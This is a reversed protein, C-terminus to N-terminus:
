EITELVTGYRAQVADRLAEFVPIYTGIIRDILNSLVDADYIHAIINRDQLMSLWADEDIFDFYRYSSKLIDRPSGTSATIDGEYALLGKLMKWGLEFQLSFKDVIGSQIFENSLDQEDAQSLVALASAYQDFRRM